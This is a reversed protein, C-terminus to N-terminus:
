VAHQKRYEGATLGTQQKFQRCFYGVDKYGLTFAIDDISQRTYILRRKSENMVRQRIVQKPSTKLVTQCIRSLTSVSIFLQDAYDKVSNHQQYQADILARFKVLIKTERSSSESHLSTLRQQRRVNIFLLQLLNSIASRSDAEAHQIEDDLSLLVQRFQEIYREDSFEVPQPAWLADNATPVEGSASLEALFDSNISLVFGQTDPEFQFGHVVGPPIMVLWNGNLFYRADDLEIHWANGFVCIIQALKHHRHPKIEWGLIRSRSVISELHVSGPEWQLFTEGYLHYFPIADQSMLFAM